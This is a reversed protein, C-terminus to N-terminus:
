EGEVEHQWLVDAIRTVAAKLHRRYTSFPLDLLEAAQEQTLAARFYTRDVVQYLRTDRPSRLLSEAAGTILRCLAEVRESATATSGVQEAVLRSRLLPSNRLTEPRHFQRLVDHVGAAFDPYSLVILPDAPPQTPKNDAATALEREGLLDLWASPPVV